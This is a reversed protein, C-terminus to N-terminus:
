SIVEFAESLRESSLPCDDGLLDKVRGAKTGKSFLISARQIAALKFAISDYRQKKEEQRMEVGKTKSLRQFSIASKRSLEEIKSLNTKRM